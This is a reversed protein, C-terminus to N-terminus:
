DPPAGILEKQHMWYPVLIDLVYSCMLDFNSWYTDTNSYCFEFRLKQAEKYQMSMMVPLSCKMKGCYIIQFPLADSAASIGILTTFAQKKHQGLVTVQKSGKVEYTSTNAPQYIINTQDINVYFSPHFIVCDHITLALQLFQELCCEDANKPLKQATCTAHCFLWHL